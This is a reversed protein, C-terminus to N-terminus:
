EHSREGSRREFIFWPYPKKSMRYAGWCAGAMAIVGIGIMILAFFVDDMLIANINFM